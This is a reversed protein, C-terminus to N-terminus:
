DFSTLVAPHHHGATDARHPEEWGSKISVRPLTSSDAGRNKQCEGVRERKVELCYRPLALRESIREFKPNPVLPEVSRLVFGNQLPTPAPKAGWRLVVNRLACAWAAALALVSRGAFPCDVFHCLAASSWDFKENRVPMAVGRCAEAELKPIYVGIFNDASLDRRIPGTSVVSINGVREAKRACYGWAEPALFVM